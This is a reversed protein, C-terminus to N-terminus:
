VRVCTSVRMCVYVYIGVCLVSAFVLCVCVCVCVLRGPPRLNSLILHCKLNGLECLVFVVIMAYTFPTPTTPPDNLRNVHFGVFVAASWYYTCNKFLNRLPMTGNSFRHVFMTEYLRKIFHGSWCYLALLQVADYDPQHGSLLAPLKSFLPYLLLPGAYEVLFVTRYGIQPGLDKLTVVNEGGERLSGQDALVVDEKLVVTSGAEGTVTLRQRYTPYKPV